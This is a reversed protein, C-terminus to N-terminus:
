RTYGSVREQADRDGDSNANFLTYIECEMYVEEQTKLTM